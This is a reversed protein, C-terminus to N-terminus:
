TEERAEVEAGGFDSYQYPNAIRDEEPQEPHMKADWAEEGLVGRVHEISVASLRRAEELRDTALLRHNYKVARGNVLVTHVDGRGAQYVLHGEPYLIPFMTPSDDNLVLVLDAKKGVTISGVIGDLGLATAGGMTAYYLVRDARLALNMVTRAERHAELHERARDLNLTARMASFMDGSWWSSTDISLSIPIGHKRLRATPSYGQGASCESETAVSAHAGSAAIRQYSDENLSSVHVHTVRNTLYGHEAILQISQDSTVGWV